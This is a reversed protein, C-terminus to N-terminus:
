HLKRQCPVRISRPDDPRGATSIAVSLHCTLCEVLYVGCRKAPYPLTTSCSRPAEGAVDLDKGTPFAPDPGCKPERGRDVWTVKLTM